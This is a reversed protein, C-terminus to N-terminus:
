RFYYKSPDVQANPNLLEQLVEPEAHRVGRTRVYIPVGDDTVLNYRTDLYATQTVPNVQMWDGGGTITGKMNPGNFRGGSFMVCRRIGGTHGSGMEIPPLLDVEIRCVFELGPVPPTLHAPGAPAGDAAAM